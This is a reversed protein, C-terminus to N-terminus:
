SLMCSNGVDMDLDLHQFSLFALNIQLVDPDGLDCSAVPDCLAAVPGILMYM